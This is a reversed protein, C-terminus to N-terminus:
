KTVTKLPFCITVVVGTEPAERERISLEIQAKYLSNLLQIREQTNTMGRSAHTKQHKTKLAASKLLGIGDDEVKICLKDDKQQVALLLTGKTERYRLGHWIANELYPQLLMNPVSVSEPDISEDLEIRYVFKDQFRMQELDLYEKLQELETSLTTFDKNSNQMINRMLRSYSSLYKNAELENNQAIYQNVSNLSNFIFHPNMERRLSQLAIRKNKKKISYLSRAILSLSFLILLVFVSLANNYFSQKSILEDKLARETELQAIRQEHVEFFRSDILTSDRRVLTDLRVLFDNYVDIAKGPKNGKLYLDALLGASTKAEMMNGEQVALEYAEQLPAIGKEYQQNSTYVNAIERQIKMTEKPSDKVEDLAVELNEVAEKEKSMAVNAAAMQRMAQVRDTKLEKRNSLDINQQIYSAQMAPNELNELRGADNANLSQMEPSVSLRGANKYTSIAEKIKNQAEQTRAIQREVEVMKEKYKGREYIQRATKLYTEAKEYEEKDYLEQALKVYNGAVITDNVAEQTLSESLDEAAKKLSRKSKSPQEKDIASSQGYASVSCILLFLIYMRKM